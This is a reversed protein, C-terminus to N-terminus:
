GRSEGKTNKELFPGFGAPGLWYELMNTVGRSTITAGALGDVEHPGDAAGKVVEIAVDGDADHIEKGNWQAKWSPNDVEGGLGPTEKHDYYTLGRITEGNADLAIFGWLTSWLGYGRIPLVWGKLEGDTGTIRYVVSVAERRGGQLSAVNEAPPVPVSLEPDKSALKLEYEDPTYTRGGEATYAPGLITGDALDVFLAEVHDEYLRDVHVLDLDEDEGLILNKAASVINQKRFREQNEEQRGRLAVACVSVVVSCVLSLLFAVKLTNRLSDKDSSM